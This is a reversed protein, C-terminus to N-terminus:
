EKDLDLTFTQQNLDVEPPLLCLIEQTTSQLHQILCRVHEVNMRAPVKAEQKCTDLTTAGVYLLAKFRKADTKTM